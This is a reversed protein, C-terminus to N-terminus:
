NGLITKLILHIDNVFSYDEVYGRNLRVKDPFIVEDNYRVPDNQNALLNEENRYKLTAPGTLGPRVSLIIRDEGELRDVYGPVDPRPGVFSMDGLFVNWLQPLEDLKWRRIMSGAPTIREDGSVTVPNLDNHLYMTRFKYLTFPRGMRGIRIQKFLIGGDSTVRVLLAIVMMLPTTLVLGLLAASIDFIRKLVRQRATM